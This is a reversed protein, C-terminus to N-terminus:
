DAAPKSADADTLGDVRDLALLLSAVRNASATWEALRGYNETVWNFAGHVVAFAGAAQVVEGLTMAGAVYQPVCLLLGIVPTLVTGVHSVLTTRMFQWCVEVWRRIVTDLAAAVVRRGDKGDPMAIGEGKERVHTGISRLEAEARKNQELVHTLHRGILITAATVLLSYAIVAPVLYGPVAVSWGLATFTLTGGLTSLVGIFIVVTIVSTLLGLVLDIPL